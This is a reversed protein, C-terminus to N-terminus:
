MSNRNKCSSTRRRDSKDFDISHLVIRKPTTYEDHIVSRSVDFFNTSEHALDLLLHGTDDSICPKDAQSIVRHATDPHQEIYNDSMWIFMPIRIQYDLSPQSAANGHGIFENQEYIEEGHDSIYVVVANANKLQEIISHLAHDTYILSNDYHATTARREDSWATPYNAATFVTFRDHPYRTAYTYHSGNLHIIILNNHDSESSPLMFEDEKIGQKNRNDFLLDSLRQNSLFSVGKNIFYQNDYLTTTYGLAKFCAPFLIDADFSDFRAMSFISKMATHTHDAATVADTFWVLRGTETNKDAIKTLRPFTTKDYGYANTHFVSHSEGIVLCITFHENDSRNRNESIFHHCKETVTEIQKLKNHVLYTSYLCRSVTTFQPISYGNRYRWFGYASYSWICFGLISLVCGTQNIWRHRALREAFISGGASLLCSLIIYRFITAGNLYTAFFLRAEDADTESLIDIIDQDIVKAFNILVFYETVTLVSLCAAVFGIYIVRLQKQRFVALPAALLMAICATLFPITWLTYPLDCYFTYAYNSVLGILLFLWFAFALTFSNSHRFFTRM